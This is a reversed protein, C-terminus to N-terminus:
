RASSRASQEARSATGLVQDAARLMARARGILVAAANCDVGAEVPVLQRDLRQLTARHTRIQDCYSM